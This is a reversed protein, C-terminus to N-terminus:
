SRGGLLWSGLPLVAVAALVVMPAQPLEAVGTALVAAEGTARAALWAAVLAAAGLLAPLDGVVPRLSSLESGHFALGLVVAAALWLVTVEISSLPSALPGSPLIALTWAALLLTQGALGFLGHVHGRQRATAALWVGATRRSALPVGILLGSTPGARFGAALARRDATRQDLYTDPVSLLAAFLQSGRGLVANALTLWRAADTRQVVLGLVLWFAAARLARVAGYHLQTVTVAGGFSGGNPANWVPLVWVVTGTFGDRHILLSWLVWIAASLVGLGIAATFLPRRVRATAPAAALCAVVTAALVIVNTSSLVVLMLAAAWTLWPLATAPAAAAPRRRVMPADAVVGQETM